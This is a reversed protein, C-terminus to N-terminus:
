HHLIGVSNDDLDRYEAAMARLQIAADSSDMKVDLLQKISSLRAKSTAISDLALAAVRLYSVPSSPLNQGMPATYLQASQFQLQQINTFIIIEEDEFIHGQAQTDFILARPYDITPNAGYQYSFSM